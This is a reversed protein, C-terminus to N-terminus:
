CPVNNLNPYQVTMKKGGLACLSGTVELFSSATNDNM